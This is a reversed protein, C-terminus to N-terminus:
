PTHCTYECEKSMGVELCKQLRCYQCRNRTVKNIICNKERHCTYVMNKQISRRFFGQTISASLHPSTNTLSPQYLFCCEKSIFSYNQRWKFLPWLGSNPDTFAVELFYFGLPSITHCLRALYDFEVGCFYQHKLELPRFNLIPFVKYSCCPKCLM